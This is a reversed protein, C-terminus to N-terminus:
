GSFLFSTPGWIWKTRNQLLPYDTAKAPIRVGSWGAQLLLM